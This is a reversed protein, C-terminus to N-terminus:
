PQLLHVREPHGDRDAEHRQPDPDMRTTGLERGRGCRLNQQRNGHRRQNVTVNDAELVEREQMETRNKHHQADTRVVIKDQKGM